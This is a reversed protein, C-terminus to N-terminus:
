VRMFPNLAICMEINLNLYESEWKM